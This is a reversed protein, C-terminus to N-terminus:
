QTGSAESSSKIALAKQYLENKKVGTIKSALAAAQKVPLEQLLVGLVFDAHEDGQHRLPEAGAVILVMEGKQQQSDETV